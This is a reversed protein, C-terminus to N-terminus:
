QEFNHSTDCRSRRSIPKPSSITRKRSRSNTPRYQVGLKSEDSDSSDVKQISKNSSLNKKNFKSTIKDFKHQSLFKDDISRYVSSSVNKQYQLKRAAGSPKIPAKALNTVSLNRVPKQIMKFTHIKIQTTEDSSSSLDTGDEEKYDPGYKIQRKISKRLDVSVAQKLDFESSLFKKFVQSEKLIKYVNSSELKELLLDSETKDQDSLEM